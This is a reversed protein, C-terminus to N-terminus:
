PSPTDTTPAAKLGEPNVIVVTNQPGKLAKEIREVQAKSIADARDYARAFFPKSLIYGIGTVVGSIAIMAMPWRMVDVIWLAWEPLINPGIAIAISPSVWGFFGGIVARGFVIKRTDTQPNLLLAGAGVLICGILPLLTQWLQDEPNYPRGTTALMATIATTTATAVAGVITDCSHFLREPLMPAQITAM